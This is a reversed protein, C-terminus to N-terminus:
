SKIADLLARERRLPANKKSLVIGTNFRAWERAAGARILEERVAAAAFNKQARRLRQIANFIASTKPFRFDAPMLARREAVDLLEGGGDIIIRALLACEANLRAARKKEGSVSGTAEPSPASSAAAGNTDKPKSTHM